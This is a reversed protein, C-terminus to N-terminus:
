TVLILSANFASVGLFSYVRIVDGGRFTLGFTFAFTNTAVLPLDYYIYQKKDDAAGGIAVSIRFWDSAGGKGATNCVVGSGNIAFYTAPIAYLDTLVGALPLVQQLSVIKNAM